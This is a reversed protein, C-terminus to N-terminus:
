FSQSTHGSRLFLGVPPILDGFSSAVTLTMYFPSALNGLTPISTLTLSQVPPDDLLPSFGFTQFVSQINLPYLSNRM